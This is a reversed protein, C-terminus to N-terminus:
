QKVVYQNGKIEQTIVFYFNEGPNLKFNYTVDKILININGDAVVGIKEKKYGKENTVLLFSTEPITISVTGTEIDRYSAVYVERTNGFIFYIEKESGAYTSYLKTFNELLKEINERKYIGYDLVEESEIGLEEKLDFIKVNESTDSYNRIAFFGTIISIIVIASLLYFQGKKEM